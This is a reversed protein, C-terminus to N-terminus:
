GITPPNRTPRKPVAMKKASLPYKAAAEARAGPAHSARRAAWRKGAKQTTVAAPNTAAAAVPCLANSPQCTAQWIAPIPNNVWGSCNTLTAVQNTVRSPTRYASTYRALRARSGATM